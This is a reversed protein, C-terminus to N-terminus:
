CLSESREFEWDCQDLSTRSSVGHVLLLDAQSEEQPFAPVDREMAVFILWVFNLFLFRGHVSGRPQFIAFLVQILRDRVSDATAYYAQEPQFKFPSFHPSFKAHYNINSAIQSPEEALPNATAPIKSSIDSDTISKGNPKATAAMALCFM